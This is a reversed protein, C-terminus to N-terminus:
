TRSRMRRPHGVTSTPRAKAARLTREFACLVPPLGGRARVESPLLGTYRCFLNHLASASPFALEEAIRELSRGPEELLRAAHLLRHWAVIKRPGPLGARALRGALTRRHVRLEAAVHEVDLPRTANVACYSFFAWLPRPVLPEVVRLINAAATERRASALAM